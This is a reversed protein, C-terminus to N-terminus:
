SYLETERISIVNNDGVWFNFEKGGNEFNEWSMTEPELDDIPEDKGNLFYIKRYSKSITTIDKGNETGEADKCCYFIDMCLERGIAARFAEIAVHYDRYSKIDVEGFEIDNRIVTYVVSKM